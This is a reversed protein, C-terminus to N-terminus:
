VRLFLKKRYLLWLVVWWVVVYTLSRVWGGTTVHLPHLVWEKVLIPLVYALIANSGFVTLPFSWARRGRVDLIWHFAGLIIAATGASLLVYSPTWLPKNFPLSLSWLYALAVLAVGIGAICTSKRAKDIKSSSILDGLATGILVLATTPVVLPLGDLGIPELYKTNIHHIINRGEAFAGTYVGPNPIFKILAWYGALLTATVFLRRPLSLDYLLTAAGYALAILQLIGVTFDLKGDDASVVLVGLLLLIATRRLARLDYEWEPLKKRRFSAVSFPIAVGVCFLFWPFVFDALHVGGRWYAHTLWTPTNAEAGFNNVLLMLLVALGRLADLSILRSSSKENM